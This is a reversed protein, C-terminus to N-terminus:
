IKGGTLSRVKQKYQPHDDYNCGKDICWETIKTRIAVLGCTTCYQKGVGRLPKFSHGKYKYKEKKSPNNVWDEIEKQSLSKWDM